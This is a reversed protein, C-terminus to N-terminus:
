GVPLIDAGHPQRRITGLQVGNLPDSTVQLIVLGPLLEEIEIRWLDIHTVQQLGIGREGQLCKGTISEYDFSNM